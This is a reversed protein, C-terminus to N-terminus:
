SATFEESRRVGNELVIGFYVTGSDHDPIKTSNVTVTLTEGPDWFSPSGGEIAYYGALSKREFDGTSGIFIDSADLEAGAIRATGVNKLWIKAYSLSPVANHSAFTNVIRIDTRMQSDAQHTASGFTDATRYIVPFIASILVGAAVVATILFLANVITESSM